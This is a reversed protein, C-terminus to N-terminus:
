SGAGSVTQVLYIATAGGVVATVGWGALALWGSIRAHHMVKRNRGVLLMLAM